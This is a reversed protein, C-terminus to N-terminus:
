ENSKRPLSASARILEDYKDVLAKAVSQISYAQAALGSAANSMQLQLQRSQLIELLADATAQVSSEVVIGAGATAIDNWINVHKSVVVPKGAALAEVVAIGFNESYSPLAFVECAQLLGTKEPGHVMGLFSVCKELRHQCVLHRAQSLYGDDPGAIVLQVDPIRQSVKHFAPILLDLGKKEHIRSLFLVIRRHLLQPYLSFFAKTQPLTFPSLDLGNAIVFGPSLLRVDAALEMESQSTYHIGAARNLLDRDFTAFFLSKRLSKKQRIYPDLTGHPRVIYPVGHLRCLYGAFVNHLFYLSHIHCIHHRPIEIRLRHLLSPSLALVHPISYAHHTLVRTGPIPSLSDVNGTLTIDTTLVTTQHGLQGLASALQLCVKAPGGTAPDLSPVLHLIRM